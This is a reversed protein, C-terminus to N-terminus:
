PQTSAAQGSTAGPNQTLYQIDQQTRQQISTDTERNTLSSNAQSEAYAYFESFDMKSFDLSSMQAATLAQCNPNQPTGWGIGLQERGQEQIIRSLISSFVCFVDYNTKLFFTGTSYTGVEHTEKAERALGLQKEETSCQALGIGAGWGTDSCCNSFGIASMTCQMGQGKFFSFTGTSNTNDNAAEQAAQLWTSAQAMQTVNSNSTAATQVDSTCNGNPCYLDSGCIAVQSSGANGTPCQFTQQYRTCNGAGDQAICTSGTQKCGRNLYQGCEASEQQQPSQCLYSDQTSWCARYQPIGDIDEIGPGNTCVQSRQTCGTIPTANPCTQVWQDNASCDPYDEIDYTSWGEGQGGVEVKMEITNTGNVLYPRLDIDQTYRWNTKLDCPGTKGSSDYQVVGDVVALMDGGRPGNYVLHGNILVSMYDDFGTYTLAFRALLATNDITFTTLEDHMTCTGNWYNDGPTGVTLTPFVYSYAANSMVGGAQLGPLNQADAPCSTQLQSTCNVTSPVEDYACTATTFAHGSNQVGLTQCGQYNTALTTAQASITQGQTLITDNPALNFQPGSIANSTVVQAADGAPAAAAAAQAQTQIGVGSNYYQTQPVNSGQYGPYSSPAASTAGSAQTNGSAGLQRAATGPDDQAIAVGFSLASVLALAKRLRANV